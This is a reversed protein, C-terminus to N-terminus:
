NKWQSNYPRTGDPYYVYPADQNESGWHTYGKTNSSEAHGDITLFNHSGQHSFAARNCRWNRGAGDIGNDCNIMTESPKKISEVKRWPNVGPSLYINQGYGGYSIEYLNEDANIKNGLIDTMVGGVKYSPCLPVSYFRVSDGWSNFAGNGKYLGKNYKALFIAKAYPGLAHPWRINYGDAYKGYTSGKEVRHPSIFGLNDMSYFNQALGIQKLTNICAISSAKERAMNLAPLLMAALIAIIAIVVLLEILTFRVSSHHKKKHM